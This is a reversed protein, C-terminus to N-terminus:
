SVGHQQFFLFHRLSESHSCTAGEWGEKCVCSFADGDVVCTGGNECPSPLCSSNRAPSVFMLTLRLSINLSKKFVFEENVGVSTVPPDRGAPPVCVGSPTEKTTAPEGTTVPRKMM